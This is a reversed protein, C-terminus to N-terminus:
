PPVPGEWDIWVNICDSDHETVKYGLKELKKKIESNWGDSIFWNVKRWELVYQTAKEFKLEKILQIKRKQEREKGWDWNRKADSRIKAIIESDTM